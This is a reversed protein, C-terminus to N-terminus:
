LTTRRDLATREKRATECLSAMFRRPFAYQFRATVLVIFLRQSSRLIIVLRVIVGHEHDLARSGRPRPMM